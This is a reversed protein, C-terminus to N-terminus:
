STSSFRSRAPSPGRSSNTVATRSLMLPTALPKFFVPHTQFRDDFVPELFQSGDTTPGTELRGAKVPRNSVPGM